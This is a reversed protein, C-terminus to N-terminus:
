TNKSRVFLLEFKAASLESSTACGTRPSPNVGKVAFIIVIAITLILWSPLNAIWTTNSEKQVAVDRTLSDVSQQLSKNKKTTDTTERQSETTRSTRVTTSESNKIADIIADHLTEYSDADAVVDPVLVDRKNPMRIVLETFEIERDLANTHVGKYAEIDEKTDRQIRSKEINRTKSFVGCAVLFFALAVSLLVKFM